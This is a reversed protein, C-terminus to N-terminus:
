SHSLQQQQQQPQASQPEPDLQLFVPTPDLLEKYPSQQPIPDLLPKYPSQEQPQQQPSNLDLRSLSDYRIPTPQRAPKHPSPQSNHYDIVPPPLYANEFGPTESQHPYDVFSNGTKPGVAGPYQWVRSQVQTYDNRSQEKQNFKVFRDKYGM